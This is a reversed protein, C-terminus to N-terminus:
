SLKIEVGFLLGFGNLLFLTLMFSQQELQGADTEVLTETDKIKSSLSSDSANLTKDSSVRLLLCLSSIEGQLTTTTLM